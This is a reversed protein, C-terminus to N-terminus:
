RLNVKLKNYSRSVIIVYLVSLNRKPIDYALKRVSDWIIKCNQLQIMGLYLEANKM